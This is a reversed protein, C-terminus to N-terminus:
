YLFDSFPNIEDPTPLIDTPDIHPGGLDSGTIQSNEIAKLEGEDLSNNGNFDVAIYDFVLDNDVDILIADQGDVTMYGVNIDHANDHDIGLIEIDHGASPLTGAHAIESLINQSEGSTSVSNETPTVSVVDIDDNAADHSTSDPTASQRTSTSHEAVRSESHDIHNWKFHNGYEAKQEATMSNWEDATYTGYVKGHWEFCGGPGVEARAAAFAKGFSMDDNVSAAVQINGDTWEPHSLGENNDGHDDSNNDPIPKPAYQPEDGKMSMLVTAVSGILLGSGAGVIVRKWGSITASKVEVEDDSSPTQNNQENSTTEEYETSENNTDQYLTEENDYNTKMTSILKIIKSLTFNTQLKEEEM